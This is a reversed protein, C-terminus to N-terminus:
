LKHNTSGAIASHVNPLLFASLKNTILFFMCELNITDLRMFMGYNQSATSSIADLYPSWISNVFSLLVLPVHQDHEIKTAPLKAKDIANPTWIKIGDAGSSVLVATHPHSEICDVELIHEKMACVHEGGKKKWIYVRGNGSGSVVYESKPGFFSLGMSMRKKGHGKYVQPISKGNAESCASSPSSPIPNNGLGM